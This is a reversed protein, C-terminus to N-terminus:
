LLGLSYTVRLTHTTGAALLSEVIRVEADAGGGFDHHPLKAVLLPNGDPWAGAITQRLDFIPNGAFPGTTFELTADSTSIKNAWLFDIPCYHTRHSHACCVPWKRDKRASGSLLNTTGM